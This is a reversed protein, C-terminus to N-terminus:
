RQAARIVLDSLGTRLSRLATISRRTRPDLSRNTLFVLFLDHDPDIWLMTGTWGTHGYTAGDALAGYVSPHAGAFDPTDWGLARTGSQPSRHLFEKLTASKVWSGTSTAGGRLWVQAFRALDAGTSFLGAHGAVGGLRFANEDNVRGPVPRGLVTRSPAVSVMDALAPAFVTAALGLPAFVERHAYTDLPEGSASEVLLGLLIANLDSYEAFTGPQRIPVAQYLLDIAGDRTAALRYFPVYSALGSTHDLLMRVTILERGLGAFRPLYRAVPADLEVKGRDVLVLLASTTAVVKTLSALDWRTTEPSPVAGRRAWTVRGFGHSYLVTDRRGIVVVAGPYIGRHIGREVLAAVSSFRPSAPPGNAVTMLSLLLPLIV